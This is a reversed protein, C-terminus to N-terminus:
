QALVFKYGIGWVTKIFNPQRPNDEIKKRLNMIHVDIARDNVFSDIGRIANILEEREFVKGPSSSFLKMLEWESYTTEIETGNVILLRRDYDFIIKDSVSSESTLSSIGLGQSEMRRLIAIIRAKLEQMSFPKCLFDDAGSQLANIRENVSNKMSVVLIPVDTLTRLKACFETGDSDPLILDLLIVDPEFETLALSGAEATEVRHVIFGEGSFYLYLMQGMVNDDEIILIKTM